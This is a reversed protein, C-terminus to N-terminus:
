SWAGLVIALDAADVTGSGDIDGICPSASCAGWAGLLLALDAADISGDQNLDAPGGGFAGPTLTIAVTDSSSQFRVDWAVIRLRVDTLEQDLPAITWAYQTTTAPLGKRVFHWSRGQDYSASLDFGRVAEDDSATWSVNVVSGGAFSGRTPAVLAVSPAEDGVYAPPRVTFYPSYYRKGNASVALIRVTDGSAYPAPFSIVGAGLGIDENMDDLLISYTMGVVYPFAGIEEGTVFPGELGPPFTFTGPLSSADPAIPAYRSDQGVHGAEDIAQVFFYGRHFFTSAPVVVLASRQGPPLNDHVVVANTITGLESFLVRQSTITGDDSADWHLMLRSNTELSRAIEQIRVVPPTEALDPAATLFPLVDINATASDGRGRPNDSSTPGSPDGWWNFQADPTDLPDEEIAGQGNGEIWNPNTSGNMDFSGNPTASVGVQNGLFQSSRLYSIGYSTTRSGYVNGQVVCNDIPVVSEDVLMGFQADTVVCYEARSGDALSWQIGHWAGPASSAGRFIIPQEPLGLLRMKFYKCWLQAGPMGVFEAGPGVELGLGPQYVETLLYPVSLAPLEDYGTPSSDNALLVFNNTNGESPVTSDILGGSLRVPYLNGTFDNNEGLSFSWGGLTVAASSSGSISLNNLYATHAADERSLSMGGGDITVHDIHLYGRLLSVGGGTFATDEIMLVGDVVSVGANSFTCRVVKRADVVSDVATCDTAFTPEFRGANMNVHLFEIHGGADLIAPFMPAWGNITIPNAATGNAYLEGAISLTHDTSINITVGADIILTGGAPVALNSTIAIPSLDTTWTVTEGPQPLPPGVPAENVTMSDIAVIRVSSFSPIQPNHFRLAVRGNGPVTAEVSQWAGYVLDTVSTLVQTFDGVGNIGSGTGVGGSPSYRVELAGVEGDLALLGTAFFGVVDGADLGEDPLIAWNNVGGSFSGGGAASVSKMFGFGDHPEIADLPQNPQWALGFAPSSQDRFIWGNSVLACPGEGCSGGLSEFDEPFNTPVVPHAISIDEVGFYLSSDGYQRLAIRGPGPLTFEWYTWGDATGENMNPMTPIDLLVVTFDGVDQVANGPNTGGSPSYRVQLSVNDFPSTDSSITYFGFVDGAVQGPVAQLIAWNSYQPAGGAAADQYSALYGTGSLPEIVIGWCCGPVWGIPGLPQSNNKFIWGKSILGQPGWGGIPVNGLNEFKEEFYTQASGSSVVNLSAVSALFASCIALRTRQHM